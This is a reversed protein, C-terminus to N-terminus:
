GELFSAFFSPEKKSEIYLYDIIYRAWSEFEGYHDMLSPLPMWMGQLKQKENVEAHKAVTVYVIGTHESTKSSIDRISGVATLEPYSPDLEINLEEKLERMAGNYLLLGPAADCPNIHGGCGLALADQLREEGAIRRTVYVKNRDKNFVLIYPIIQQFANEYEADYRFVFRGHQLNLFRNGGVTFKDPIRTADMAPIVYVQEGKYKGKLRAKLFGDKVM